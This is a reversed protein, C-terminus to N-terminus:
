RSQFTDISPRPAGPLAALKERWARAKELQHTAEFFRVVRDGADRLRWDADPMAGPEKMGEYGQILASEAEAYKGQGGLLAGLLNMSYFCRADDPQEQEFIEVAERALAEGEVYRRQLLRNRALWGLTAARGLRGHLDNRTRGLELNEYLLREAQDLKGAAQYSVAVQTLYFGDKHTTVVDAAKRLEMVKEHLAVAEHVRGLIRLSVALDHMAAHTYPHTLGHIARMRELVQERLQICLDTQGVNWYAGALDSLRQLAEPHDPGLVANRCEWIHQRYALAESFRGEWSYAAALSSLSALTDAADGGLWEQRLTVARKLHPIALKFSDVSMLADGITKRIAAEVLPQDHFQQDIRTAARLLTERLTINRSGGFEVEAEPASNVQLLVDQQFFDNLARAIAAETTARREADRAKVAQWTSVATAAVLAAGVVGATVLARRHRRAMKRLRYWATPPCAQVPEDRLYREVDAAFEGASEYRRNRDKELAKMVIWDLESRMLEGLQRADVKRREAVTSSYQAALTSVRRSPRAPEDERIMRRVEDLGATRFAGGDFPTTGTLLEYLLVGLAYVDTRTDVDVGSLEAQEPSMYLPTGVMQHFGTVLTRDTLGGDTAKAIGFDIVKPVPAGDIVTVLVNSPKLDRHIVGKQHAHQVARCATAFLALRDRVTLRAQDCYDTIPLGRVLEM